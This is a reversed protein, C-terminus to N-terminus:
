VVSKRDLTGPRGAFVPGETGAVLLQVSELGPAQAARSWAAFLRDLNKRPELSSVTLIYPRAPFSGEGLRAARATVGSHVVRIKAPDAIGYRGIETASFQSDTVVRRVVRGLRPLLRRYTWAFWPKFWEPHALVALDHITLVQRAISVPGLNCPSWLLDARARRFMRPLIIQEWLYDGFPGGARVLPTDSDPRQLRAAPALVVLEDGREALVPRLARVLERAYRQVGTIRYRLFRGNVAIRAVYRGRGLVAPQEIPRSGRPTM